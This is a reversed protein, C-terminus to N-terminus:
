IMKAASSHVWALATLLWDVVGVVFLLLVCIACLWTCVRMCSALVCVVPSSVGVPLVAPGTDM